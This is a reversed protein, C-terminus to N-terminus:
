FLTRVNSSKASTQPPPFSKRKTQAKWTSKEKEMIHTVSFTHASTILSTNWVFLMLPGTESKSVDRRPWTSSPATITSGSQMKLLDMILKRQVAYRVTQATANQRM